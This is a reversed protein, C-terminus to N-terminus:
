LKRLMDFFLAISSALNSSATYVSRFSGVNVNTSPSSPSSLCWLLCCHLCSAWRVILQQSPLLLHRCRHVTPGIQSHCHRCHCRRQIITSPSLLLLSLSPQLPPLGLCRDVKVRSQGATLERVRRVGGASRTTPRASDVCALACHSRMPGLKAAIISNVAHHFLPPNNDDDLHSM